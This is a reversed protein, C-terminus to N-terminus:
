ARVRYVRWLYKSRYVYYTVTKMPRGLSLQASCKGIRSLRRSVDINISPSGDERIRTFTTMGVLYINVSGLIKEEWLDNEKQGRKKM